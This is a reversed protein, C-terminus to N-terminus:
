PAALMAKLEAGMISYHARCFRCNVEVPEDKRAAEEIEKRGLAHVAELVRERNCACHYVVERKEVVKFPIGLAEKMMEECTMGGLLMATVPRLGALRQELFKITEEELGPLASIMFGGSMKVSNDTDVFVGMGVASSIQESANLYYALDEAIEGSKLPVTGRYPEKLGLDKIVNMFGIGVASGVDLKDGKLPLHVHPKRVYGRIMCPWDAEAVIEHLPGDGAVQVMVKQGEELSSALLTAATIVRGFAASATPYTDHVRRARDVTETNITGIIIVNEKEPLGKLLIDM